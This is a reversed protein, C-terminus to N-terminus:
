PVCILAATVVFVGLPVSYAGAVFAIALVFFILPAASKDYCPCECVGGEKVTGQRARPGLACMCACSEPQRPASSASAAEATANDALHTGALIGHLAGHTRMQAVGLGTSAVVVVLALFAIAYWMHRHTEHCDGQDCTPRKPMATPPVATQTGAGVPVSTPVDAQGSIDNNDYPVSETPKTATM